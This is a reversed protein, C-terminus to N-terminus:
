SKLTAGEKVIEKNLPLADIKQWDLSEANWSFLELPGYKLNVTLSKPKLSTNFQMFDRVIMFTNQGDKIDACVKIFDDLNKISRGDFESVIM